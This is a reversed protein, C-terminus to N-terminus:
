LDHKTVLNILDNITDEKSYEEDEILSFAILLIDTKLASNRLLEKIDDKM